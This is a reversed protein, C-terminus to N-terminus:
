QRVGYINLLGLYERMPPYQEPPWPDPMEGRAIKAAECEDVNTVILCHACLRFFAVLDSHSVPYPWSRDHCVEMITQDEDSPGPNVHPNNTTVGPPLNWTSM